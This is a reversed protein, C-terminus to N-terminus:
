VALLVLSFILLSGGLSASFGVAFYEHDIGTAYALEGLLCRQVRARGQVVVGFGAPQDDIVFLVDHTGKIAM